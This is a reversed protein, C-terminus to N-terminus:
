TIGKPTHTRTHTHTHLLQRERRDVIVIHLGLRLRGRVRARTRVIFMGVISQIPTLLPSSALWPIWQPSPVLAV